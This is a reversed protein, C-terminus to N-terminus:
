ILLAYIVILRILKGIRLWSSGFISCKLDSHLICVGMVSEGSLESRIRLWISFRFENM